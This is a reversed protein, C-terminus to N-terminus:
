RKVGFARAEYSVAILSGNSNNMHRNEDPRRTALDGFPNYQAVGLPKGRLCPHSVITMRSRTVFPFYASRGYMRSFRM